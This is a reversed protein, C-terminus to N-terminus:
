KQGLYDDSTQDLSGNLIEARSSASSGNFSNTFTVPPLPRSVRYKSGNEINGMVLTQKTQAGTKTVNRTVTVESNDLESVKYKPGVSTTDLHLRTITEEPGPSSVTQAIPKGESAVSVRTINVSISSPLSSNKFLDIESSDLEGEEDLGLLAKWWDTLGDAGM